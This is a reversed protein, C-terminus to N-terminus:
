KGEFVAFEVMGDGIDTPRTINLNLAGDVLVHGDDSVVRIDTVGNFQLASGGKWRIITDHSGTSLHGDVGTVRSDNEKRVYLTQAPFTKDPNGATSHEILSLNAVVHMM